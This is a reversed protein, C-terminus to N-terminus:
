VLPLSLSYPGSYCLCSGSPIVLLWRVDVGVGGGGGCMVVVVV